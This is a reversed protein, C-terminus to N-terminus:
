FCELVFHMNMTIVSSDEAICNWECVRQTLCKCGISLKLIFCNISCHPTLIPGYGDSGSSSRLRSVKKFVMTDSQAMSTCIEIEM